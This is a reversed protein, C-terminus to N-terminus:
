LFEFEDDSGSSKNNPRRLSEFDRGTAGDPQLSPASDSITYFGDDDSM